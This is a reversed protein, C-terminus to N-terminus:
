IEEETLPADETATLVAPVMGAPAAAMVTAAAVTLSGRSLFRRRSVGAMHKRGERGPGGPRQQRYEDGRTLRSSVKIRVMPRSEGIQGSSSRAAPRRAPDPVADPVGRVPPFDGPLSSIHNSMDLPRERRIRKRSTAPRAAAKIAPGATPARAAGGVADEEDHSTVDPDQGM